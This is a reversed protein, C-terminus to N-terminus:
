INKVMKAKQKIKISFKLQSNIFLKALCIIM